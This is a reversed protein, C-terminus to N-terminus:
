LSVLRQILKLPARLLRRVNSVAGKLLSARSSERDATTTSVSLYLTRTPKGSISIM